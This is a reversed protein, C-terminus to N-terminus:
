PYSRGAPSTRAEAATPRDHSFAITPLAAALMAVWAQLPLKPVVRWALRPLLGALVAPSFMWRWPRSWALAAGAAGASAVVILPHRQTLPNLGAAFASGALQSIRRLPHHTWWGNFWEVMAGTFSTGARKVFTKRAAAPSLALRLRVRSLELRELATM